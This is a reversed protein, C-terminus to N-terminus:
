RREGRLVQGAQRLEMATVSGDPGREFDIQLGIAPNAFGDGDVPQLPFEPQGTAQGFLKGDRQRIVVDFGPALPYSGAYDDLVPTASAMSAHQGDDHAAPEAATAVPIFACAALALVVTAVPTKM